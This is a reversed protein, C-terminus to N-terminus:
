TTSPSLARDNPQQHQLSLRLPSGSACRLARSVGCPRRSRALRIRVPQVIVGAARAAPMLRWVPEDGPNAEALPSAPQAVAALNVRWEQVEGHPREAGGRIARVAALQSM